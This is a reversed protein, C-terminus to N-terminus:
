AVHVVGEPPMFHEKTIDNFADGCGPITCISHPPGPLKNSTL